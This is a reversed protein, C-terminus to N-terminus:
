RIPRGPNGVYVAGAPVDKTVVAGAGVVSEEGITIGPLLTAHNGIRAGRRLIPGQHPYNGQGMYKDNSTSCCPGIFVHDEIIMDSTVYSGSQITVRRGIVTKPEVIVGRGVISSEGVTVKERISALDGVLVDELLESGRYLVVHCGIRANAGIVLPPLSDAPKLAMKQNSFPATGLVSHDGIRAHDGIRTGSKIVVFHGITVYDGIVVDDEFVVYQGIAAHQGIRPPDGVM